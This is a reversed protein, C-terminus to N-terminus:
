WRFRTIRLILATWLFWWDLWPTRQFFNAQQASRTLRDYGDTYRYVDVHLGSVFVTVLSDPMDVRGDEDDKLKSCANNFHLVLEKVAEVTQRGDELSHKGDSDCENKVISVGAM